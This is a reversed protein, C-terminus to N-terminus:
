FRLKRSLRRLAARSDQPLDAQLFRVSTAFRRLMEAHIGVQRDSRGRSALGDMESLIAFGISSRVPILALRHRQPTMRLFVVTKVFAPTDKTEGSRYCAKEEDPVGSYCPAVPDMDIRCLDSLVALGQGNLSVVGPELLASARWGTTEDDLLLQEDAVISWGYESLAACTVSKGSGSRGVLAVAHEDRQVVAGRLVFANETTSIIWGLIIGIAALVNSRDVSRVMRITFSRRHVQAIAFTSGDGFLLAGKRKVPLRVLRGHHQTEYYPTADESVTARSTAYQVDFSFGGVTTAGNSSARFRSRAYAHIWDIDSEIRLTHASGIAWETATM